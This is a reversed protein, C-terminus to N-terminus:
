PQLEKGTLHPKAALRRAVAVLTDTVREPEFSVQGHTFRLSTLGMATHTQDRTMDRAQQAPTRHYRWGDTEVVLGLDPWYFDVKFGNVYRGTEPPPLGARAILPLFRRELESDTLTFMRRQLCERLFPVGRQGALEDLACQLSEARVLGSKDAENIARELEHPTSRIALDVLTRVPTTVRIGHHKTWDIRARRHFEIGPRRRYSRAPVSVEITPMESPWIDWLAGASSHSLAADPGCTLVAAMWVGRDTLMPRGVAYVGRWAPHLRGKAIRHNIEHPRLGAELLQQRTV